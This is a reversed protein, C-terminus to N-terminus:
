ASTPPPTASTVGCAASPSGTACSPPFAEGSVLAKDALAPRHRRRGGEFLIRLFSPTGAYGHPACSRCRRCGAARHQGRRRRLGHLRDRARRNGDDLRGAHPPLQLQQPDPRRRSLGRCAHARSAGTTPPRARPNTSRAPRSSSARRGAAAWRRGASPPSAASRIRTARQAKQRELLEHKRTVPLALALATAARSRRRTWAPWCRGFAAPRRCRWGQRAARSRRQARGPRADRARRFPETM